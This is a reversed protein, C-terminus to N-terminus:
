MNGCALLEPVRLPAEAGGGEEVCAQEAVPSATVCHQSELKSDGPVWRQVLIIGELPMPWKLLPLFRLGASSLCLLHHGTLLAFESPAQLQQCACFGEGQFRGGEVNLLLYRGM